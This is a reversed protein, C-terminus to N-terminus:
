QVLAYGQKKADELKSKLITGTIGQPSKVKIREESDTKPPMAGKLSGSAALKIQDPTWDPHQKAITDESIPSTESQPPQATYRSSQGFESPSNTLKNEVAGFQDKLAQFDNQNNTPFNKSAAINALTNLDKLLNIPSNKLAAATTAAASKADTQQKTKQSQEAASEFRAVFKPDTFMQQPHAQIVKQPDIGGLVEQVAGLKHALLPDAAPPTKVSASAVWKQEAPNLYLKEADGPTYGAQVGKVYSTQAATLEAAAQPQLSTPVKKLIDYKNEVPELYLKSADDPTYGAAVGAQYRQQAQNWEALFQASQDPPAPPAPAAPTNDQFSFTSPDGPGTAIINAPM